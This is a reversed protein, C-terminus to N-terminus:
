KEGRLVIFNIETRNLFRLPVTHSGLGRTIFLTGFPYRYVGADEKPIRLRPSVMGGLVPLRLLGGHLHGSAVFDPRYKEYWTMYEPNHALLIHFGDPAMSLEPLNEKKDWLKGKSYFEEPLSVGSFTIDTGHLSRTVSSNDLLSIEKSLACKYDEWAANKKLRMREEHNGLSYYVSAIRVLDNLFRIANKQSATHKNVMDGPVLIYDPHFEKIKSCIKKCNKKNNHLDALVCLKISTDSHLKICEVTTSNYDIATHEIWEYCLWILITLLLICIYIM